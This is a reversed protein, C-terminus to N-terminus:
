KTVAEVHAKLDQKISYFLHYNLGGFLTVVGLFLVVFIGFMQKGVIKDTMENLKTHVIDVRGHITTIDKDHEARFDSFDKEHNQEVHTIKSCLHNKDKEDQQIKDDHWPCVAFDAERRGASHRRNRKPDAWWEKLSQPPKDSM